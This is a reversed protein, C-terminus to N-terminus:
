RLDVLIEEQNPSVKLTWGRTVEKIPDPRVSEWGKITTPIWQQGWPYVGMRADVKWTWNPPFQGEKLRFGPSDSFKTTPVAIKLGYHSGFRPDADPSDIIWDPFRWPETDSRGYLGMSAPWYVKEGPKDEYMEGKIWQILAYDSTRADRALTLTFDQNLRLENLKGTRDRGLFETAKGRDLSLVRSMLNVLAVFEPPSIRQITGPAPTGESQQVVHALEHALLYNGAESHPAYQGTGFVIDHGVTFALASVAEASEAAQAEKHVRVRSFDYGFRPEMLVRIGADLPQGPSRLVEEVILPVEPAKASSSDTELARPFMEKGRDEPCTDGCSCMRRLSSEDSAPGGLGLAFGSGHLGAIVDKAVRDAEREYVDGTQGIELRARLLRQMGQNGLTRSMQVLPSSAPTPCVSARAVSAPVAFPTAAEAATHQKILHNQYM